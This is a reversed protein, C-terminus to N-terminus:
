IKTKYRMLQLFVRDANSNGYGFSDKLESENFVSKIRSAKEERRCNRGLIRGTLFGNSWELNTSIVGNIGWLVALPNLYIDPSASIIYISDESSQHQRLKQLMKKRVVLPIFVKLFIKNAREVDKQRAGGLFSRLFTEKLQQRGIVGKLFGYCGVLVSGTLIIRWPRLFLSIVCYPIFSDCHILTGDFDFFILAM